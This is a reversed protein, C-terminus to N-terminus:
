TNLCSTWTLIRLIDRWGKDRYPVFEASGDTVNIWLQWVYGLASYSKEQEEGVKESAQDGSGQVSKTRRGKKRAKWHCQQCCSSSCVAHILQEEMPFQSPPLSCQASTSSSPCGQRVPRFSASRSPSLPTFVCLQRPESGAHKKCSLLAELLSVKTTRQENGYLSTIELLNEAHPRRHFCECHLSLM